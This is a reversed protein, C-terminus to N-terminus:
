TSVHDLAAETVQALETLEEPTIILAPSVHIAGTALTRTLVGRERMAAVVRPPVTPDAEIVAPDIQIAALLGKEARVETVLEHDALPGLTDRLVPELEVVREALNESEIIELNALAAAAVAAHGSYTYGHRWFGVTGDFFPEAVKANVIVAGMPLYGSTLGKATVVIDPAIDYRQSAFWAGTRAYGTVVEDAVFLVGAARCIREVENLYGPEPHFVGGAGVIPECFFAAVREEGLNAILKELDEASDREVRFTEGMLEGYGVRNTDIGAISTGAVHMGHYSGQRTIVVRRDPSGMDHWYRRIIKVATDICDSGGSTFFVKADAFPSISAVREALEDVAPNTFDGFTSYAALEEMQRAAAAAITTRGHGVNCYWLSATADLYGRGDSGFVRTGEGRVVTFPGTKEVLSMDSFPHWFSTM